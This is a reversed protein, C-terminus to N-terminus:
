LIKHNETMCWFDAVPVGMDGGEWVVSEDGKASWGEAQWLTGSASLLNGSATQKVCPITFKQIVRERCRGEGEEGGVKDMPRNEIDTEGSSGQFYIWWHQRKLNWIYTLMHYKYKEKQSVESQIIPELKTWRMLVSEFANRKIASYYEITYIYWLKMNIWEDTSPCRPQEWTRAVTFPAAMFMPTCTDKGIKIEEPYICLLPIAPDYLSKIGLKKLLRWLM